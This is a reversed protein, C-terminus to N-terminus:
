KESTVAQYGAARYIQETLAVVEKAFEGPVKVETSGLIADIFSKDSNNTQPPLEPIIAENGLRRLVIKGNDYFIAGNEGCFVYTEHWCPANGVINLGAVVNNEFRITTFSDLEVHTLHKELKCEVELPKLGTTWLLVDVIHSGSDMLMGGGSLSPNQRWTGTTLHKWDQYLSATVSTLKGITGNSLAERIYLFSPEFHRQYSVQLVRKAKKALEILQEAEDLSCAMPKEILVHCGHHISDVVQQYHLTHPSCILVADMPITELMDQHDNFEVIQELNFKGILQKRNELSPDAVAVIQATNIEMLQKVHVNSIGGTGIIGVRVSEM